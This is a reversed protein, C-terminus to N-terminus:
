GNLAAYVEVMTKGVWYSLEECAVSKKKECNADAWGGKGKVNICTNKNIPDSPENKAWPIDYKVIQSSM